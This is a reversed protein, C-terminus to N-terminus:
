AIGTTSRKSKKEEDLVSHEKVINHPSGAAGLESGMESDHLTDCDTFKRTYM